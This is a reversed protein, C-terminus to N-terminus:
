SIQTGQRAVVTLIDMTTIIGLLQKGEAVVVRHIRRNLMLECVQQLSETPAVTVVPKAMIQGVVNPSWAGLNNAKRLIDTKSIMGVLEGADNVVPVGRIRGEGFLKTVDTLPSKENVTVVETTMVDSALLTM